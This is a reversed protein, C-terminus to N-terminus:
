ISKIKSSFASITGKMLTYKKISEQYYKSFGDYNTPLEIGLEKSLIKAKDIGEVVSKSSLIAKDLVKNSEDLISLAKTIESVASDEINNAEIRAKTLEEIISLEVKQSALEEKKFLKSFVVKQESM